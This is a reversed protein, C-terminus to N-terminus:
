LSIRLPLEPALGFELGDFLEVSLVTPAEVVLCQGADYARTRRLGIGTGLAVLYMPAVALLDVTGFFSL